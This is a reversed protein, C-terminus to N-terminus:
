IHTHYIYSQENVSHEHPVFHEYTSLSLSVLTWNLLHPLHDQRSRYPAFSTELDQEETAPIRVVTHAPRVLELWGIELPVDPLFVLPIM